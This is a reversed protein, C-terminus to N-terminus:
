DAFESRRSNAAQVRWRQQALQLERTGKESDERADATKAPRGPLENKQKDPSKAELYIQAM